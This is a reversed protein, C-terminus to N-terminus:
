QGGKSMLMQAQVDSTQSDAFAKEFINLLASMGRPRVGDAFYENKFEYGDSKEVEVVKICGPTEDYSRNYKWPGDDTVIAKEPIANLVAKILNPRLFPCYKVRHLNSLVEHRIRAKDFFWVVKGKLIGEKEFRGYSFWDSWETWDMRAQKCGWPNLQKTDKGFCYEVPRYAANREDTCWVFGFLEDWAIETGNFYSKKNRLGSLHSALDIAHQFEVARWAALYWTKKNRVCTAFAPSLEALKLATPFSASSSECFEIAYGNQPIEYETSIPANLVAGCKGCFNAAKSVQANCAPCQVPADASKIREIADRSMQVTQEDTLNIQQAFAAIIQQESDSLAGDAVAAFLMDALNSVQSAFSKTKSPSYDSISARKIAADCTSKKANISVRIEDLAAAKAASTNSDAKILFAINALYIIQDSEDFTM